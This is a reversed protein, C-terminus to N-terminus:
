NQTAATLKIVIVDSHRRKYVNFVDVNVCLDDRLSCRATITSKHAFFYICIIIKIEGLL